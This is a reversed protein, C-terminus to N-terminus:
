LKRQLNRVSVTHSKTKKKFVREMVKNESQSHTIKNQFHLKRTHM